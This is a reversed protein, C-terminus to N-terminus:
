MFDLSGEVGNVMLLNTAKLSLAGYEINKREVKPWQNNGFADNCFKRYFDLNLKFSRMPHRDSVTQWYGYETCSQYYWSRSGGGNEIAFTVNKLYYSGYEYVDNSIANKVLYDFQQEESKGKLDNCLNTRKGYQVLGVISDVWFFLFEEDSLKDAGKFQAKFSSANASKLLSEVKHSSDNVAKVCFDGSLATALYMEEDFDKFDEVALIVASSAIAGITLHPYKYRFWASLAGPYSGGVTIFPTRDTIKHSHTHRMQEIFYALDSLAQESNLHIMNEIKLSDKGYPMSQGYYRHELVLILGQFRQALTVIWQRSEPVGPCVYEGCIYVFVPGISPNFYNDIYWYRQQYTQNAQYNFHDVINTFWAQTQGKM